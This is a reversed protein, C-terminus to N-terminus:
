LVDCRGRRREGGDRQGASRRRRGRRRRRGMGQGGRRRDTRGRDCGGLVLVGEDILGILGLVAQAVGRGVVGEGIVAGRGPAPIGVVAVATHDFRHGDAVAIVVAVVIVLGARVRGVEDIVV